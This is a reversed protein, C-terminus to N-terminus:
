KMKKMSFYIPFNIRQLCNKREVLSENDIFPFIVNTFLNEDFNISDTGCNCWWRKLWNTVRLRDCILPWEVLHGISNLGVFRGHSTVIRNSVFPRVIFGSSSHSHMIRWRLYLIIQPAHFMVEFQIRFVKSNFAFYSRIKIRIQVLQPSWPIWSFSLL